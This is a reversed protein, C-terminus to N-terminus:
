SRVVESDSTSRSTTTNARIYRALESEAIRFAGVTTGIRLATLRQHKILNRVTSPSVSLCEAVQKITLFKESIDVM